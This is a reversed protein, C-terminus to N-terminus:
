RRDALSNRTTQYNFIYPLIKKKETPRRQIRRGKKDKGPAVSGLNGARTQRRKQGRREVGKKTYHSGRALEIRVPRTRLQECILKSSATRRVNPEGGETRGGEGRGSKDM